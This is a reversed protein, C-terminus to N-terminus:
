VRAEEVRTVRLTGIILVLNVVAIVLALAAAGGFNLQQWGM